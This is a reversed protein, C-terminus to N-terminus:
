VENGFIASIERDIEAESPLDIMLLRCDLTRLRSLLDLGKINTAGIVKGAREALLYFLIVVEYRTLQSQIYKAYLRYNASAAAIEAIYLITNFYGDLFEGHDEQVRRLAQSYHHHRDKFSIKYFHVSGIARMAEKISESEGGRSGIYHKLREWRENFHGQATIDAIFSERSEDFNRIWNPENLAEFLNWYHVDALNEPEKCLLMRSIDVAETTLEKHIRDAIHKLSKHASLENGEISVSSHQIRYQLSDFLKYFISDESQRKFQAQTLFTTYALVFLALSGYVGSLYSGLEGWRVHEDALTGHFKLFYVAAPALAVIALAPIIQSKKM